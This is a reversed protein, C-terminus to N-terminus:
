ALGISFRTPYPKAGPGCVKLFSKQPTTNIHRLPDLRRTCQKRTARSEILIPSSPEYLYGNAASCGRQFFRERLLRPPANAFSQLNCLTLAYLTLACNAAWLVKSYCEAEDMLGENSCGSPSIPAWRNVSRPMTILRLSGSWFFREVSLGAIFAPERSMSLQGVSSVNSCRLDVFNKGIM